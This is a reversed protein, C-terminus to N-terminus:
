SLIGPNHSGFDCLANTGGGAMRLCSRKGPTMEVRVSRGRWLADADAGLLRVCLRMDM